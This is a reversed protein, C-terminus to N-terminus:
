RLLICEYWCLHRGCSWHRGLGQLRTHMPFAGGIDGSYNTGSYYRSAVLLRDPIKERPLHSSLTPLLIDQNDWPRTRLRAYRRFRATTSFLSEARYYEINFLSSRKLMGQSVYSSWLLEIRNRHTKRVWIKDSRHLSWYRYVKPISTWLLADGRRLQFKSLM